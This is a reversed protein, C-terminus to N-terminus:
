RLAELVKARNKTVTAATPNRPRKGTINFTKVVRAPRESLVVVKDALLVAEEVDHTVFIVTRPDRALVGALWTHLDARTIADLAGFPEDLCLVPAGSLLTRAFAIRQRMGGSLEWTHADEFDGLGFEALMARAPADGEKRLTLPLAANELASLWPLLLDRQPMLVARDSKVSGSDPEQLGCVLDLLTSKGCGSTGVVAVVEGAEATLSVDEIALLDGYSRGVKEIKVSTLMGKARM